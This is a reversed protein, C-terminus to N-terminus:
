FRAVQPFTGHKMPCGCTLAPLEWVCESCTKYGLEHFRDIRSESPEVGQYRTRAASHALCGLAHILGQSAAPRILVGDDAALDPPVM